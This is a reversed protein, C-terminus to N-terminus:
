YDKLTIEKVRLEALHQTPAQEQRRAAEIRQQAPDAM